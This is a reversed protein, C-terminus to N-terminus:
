GDSWQEAVIILGKLCLKCSKELFYSEGGFFLTRWREAVTILGRMCLKCLNELFYSEGLFFLTLVRRLIILVWYSVYVTMSVAEKDFVWRLNVFVAVPKKLILTCHYRALVTNFNWRFKEILLNRLAGVLQSKFSEKINRQGILVKASM